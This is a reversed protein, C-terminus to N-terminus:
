RFHVRVEGIETLGAAAERLARATAEPDAAAALPLVVDVHIRGELYHLTVEEIRAAEPIHRWRRELRALVEGRLPLGESPNGGTDDEPDVHVTVDRVEPLAEMLRARVTEGIQHGESVSVRPDVLIHVDVLAHPGMRRTRLMHLTRVGDTGLIVRRIERVREPELGTDILERVGGAALEWGVKAIMLAVAVAAVADLSEIGLMVGGIGLLVVVSSVADSRHHWANARLLDSQVRRAVLVTYQYLAEKAIVSLAAAALALAGPRLLRQPDLLREAADWLIGAAVGILLGGVAVTAVTEIRAHGYPHEADAARSGERSAYLVVADSALDSLSHVADAVLAASHGLLGAVLKVAALVVNVVAGIVTARRTARHRAEDEAAHAATTADAAM